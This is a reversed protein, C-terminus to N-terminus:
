LTYIITQSQEPTSIQKKKLSVAVVSISVYQGVRERCSTRGIERGHEHPRATRVEWRAFRVFPLSCCASGGTSPTVRQPSTISTPGIVPPKTRPATSCSSQPLGYRCSRVARRAPSPPKSKLKPLM